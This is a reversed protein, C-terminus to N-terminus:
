ESNQKKNRKSPNKLHECTCINFYSCIINKSSKCSRDNDLYFDPRYCVPGYGKDVMTKNDNM